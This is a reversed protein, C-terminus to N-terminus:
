ALANASYPSAPSLRTSRARALATFAEIERAQWDADRDLEAALLAAAAAEPTGDDSGGDAVIVEAIM